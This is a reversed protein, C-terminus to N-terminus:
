AGDSDGPVELVALVRKVREALLITQGDPEAKKLTERSEIYRLAAAIQAAAGSIIGAVQAIQSEEGYLISFVQVATGALVLLLTIYLESTKLGSKLGNTEDM